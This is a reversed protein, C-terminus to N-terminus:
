KMDPHKKEWRRRARVRVAEELKDKAEPILDEELKTKGGALFRILAYILLAAPALGCVLGAALWFAARDEAARSDQATHGAGIQAGELLPLVARVPDHDRKAAAKGVPIQLADPIPEGRVLSMGDIKNFKADYADWIEMVREKIKLLTESYIVASELHRRANEGKEKNKAACSSRGECSSDM